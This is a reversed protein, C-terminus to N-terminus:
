GRGHQESLIGWVLGVVVLGALRDRRIGISGLRILALALRVLASSLGVGTSRLGIQSAGPCKRSGDKICVAGMCAIQHNWWSLRCRLRKWILPCFIM